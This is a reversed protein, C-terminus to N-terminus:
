KLQFIDVGLIDFALTWAVPANTWGTYISGAGGESCNGGGWWGSELDSMGRWCGHLHKESSKDQIKKLLALLKKGTNRADADFSSQLALVAWNVTYITDVLHKGIPAERHEAPLNGASSIKGCLIRSLEQSLRLANENGTFRYIGNASLLAYSQESSNFKDAYQQMYGTYKKIYLDYKERADNETEDAFARSLAMATLGGWHPLSLFGTWGGTADYWSQEPPMEMKEPLLTLAADAMCRSLELAWYKMDYRADLEPYLEAVTLAIFICWANDDFWVCSDRRIHSWNWSGTPYRKAGRCLLGSRFYLFDFINVATDYFRKEKLAMSAALYMFAAEFNCDARRQEIVSYGPFDTYAPFEMRIKEVASNDATLVIREAVGWLGNDPIMVGSREFWQLNKLLSSKSM